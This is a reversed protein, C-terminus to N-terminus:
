DPKRLSYVLLPPSFLFGFPLLYTLIGSFGQTWSYLFVEHVCVYLLCVFVFCFLVSIVSIITFNLDEESNNELNQDYKYTSISGTNSLLHFMAKHRITTCVLERM